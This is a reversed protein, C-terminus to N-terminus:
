DDRELAPRPLARPGAGEFDPFSKKEISIKSTEEHPAKIKKNLQETRQNLSQIFCM